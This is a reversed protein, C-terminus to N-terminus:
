FGYSLNASWYSSRDRSFQGIFCPGTHYEAYLRVCRGVNQLKSIECGLAFNADLRWSNDQWSRLYMAVYPQFYLLHYMNKSDFFRWDGGGEFYWRKLKYTNDSRVVAGVGGYVRLDNTIDYAAFLDVAEMSPNLRTVTPHLVMYEDGLHSSTHYYRLRFAWNDFSYSLPIGVYYDTNFLNVDGKMDFYAWACGEIGVQLDGQVPGVGLWRFIPFHDGLSVFAANKGVVDDDFRWSLAYAVRQPNAVMTPFLRTSQPFWIGDIHQSSTDKAKIDEVVKADGDAAVATTDMVQVEKVEPFDDVFSIISAELFRNNPLHYLSAKGDSYKVEVRFEYYHMDLLAQLYGEVYENSAGEFRGLPIEDARTDEAASVLSGLFIAMVTAMGLFFARGFM